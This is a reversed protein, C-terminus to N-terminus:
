RIVFPRLAVTRNDGEVITVRSAGAVVKQLLAPNSWESAAADSVAVVYYVGAPINELAFTGDAGATLRRSRRVNFDGRRWGDSDAPFVLVSSQSDPQGTATTITGSLRSIADTLTVVIDDADASLDFPDDAVNRGAHTISRLAWGRPPWAEVFYRGPLDGSTAFTGDPLAFAMATREMVEAGVSRLGVAIAPTSAPAAQTSSFRVRGTMKLGPRVSVTVDSIDDRDVVISQAAWLVPATPQGPVPAIPLRTARLRYTGPPIGLFTFAGTADSVTVAAEYGVDSRFAESGQALLRVGLDQVPGDPGVLRGSVRVGPVLRLTLDVGRRDEGANVSVPTSTVPSDATPFYTSRYTLVRGDPQPPPPTYGLLAADSIQRIWGDLRYGTARPSPVGNNRLEIYLPPVRTPDPWAALAAAYRESLSVPVTSQTAKFGVVYQGPPLGGAAYVGRDDTRATAAPALSLRGASYARRWVIVTAGSAPHGAEDFVTGSISAVKWLHVDLGTRREGEKLELAHVRTDAPRDRLYGGPLYGIATVALSYRGSALERFLWYGDSNTVVTRTPPATPRAPPASAAVPGANDGLRVLTVLAGSIPQRSDADLARGLLFGIAPASPASPANGQRPQEATSGDVVAVAMVVSVALMRRHLRGKALLAFM